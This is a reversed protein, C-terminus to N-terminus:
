ISLFTDKVKESNLRNYNHSPPIQFHLVDAKLISCIEKMKELIEFTKSTLEFKLQHTIRQNCRVTFKFDKPVMKRWKKVTKTKPIEYFTSNVEVFNFARSYATLPNIRPIKFYAWGGTGILFDIM